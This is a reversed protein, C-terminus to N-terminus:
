RRQIHNRNKGSERRPLNMSQGFCFVAPIEPLTHLTSNWEAVTKSIIRPEETGLAGAFCLQLTEPLISLCANLTKENRYPTEIFIRAAHDRIADEAKRSLIARFAKQEIPLYGLFCFNQGNLGSAALALLISSEEGMPIVPIRYRHAAAVLAAGPDAICPLGAESLIACNEGKKLMALPLELDEQTSHENLLFFHLAAFRDTPLIRSLFRTASKESEVVFYNIKQLCEIIV